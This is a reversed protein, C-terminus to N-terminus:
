IKWRQQQQQPAAPGSDYLLTDRETGAAPMRRAADEIRVHLHELLAPDIVERM